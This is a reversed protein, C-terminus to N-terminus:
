LPLTLVNDLNHLIRAIVILTYRPDITADQALEDLASRIARVATRYAECAVDQEPVPQVKV